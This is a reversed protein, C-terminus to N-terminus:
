AFGLSSKASPAIPSSAKPNGKRAWLTPQCFTGLIESQTPGYAKHTLFSAFRLVRRASPANVNVNTRQCRVTPHAFCSSGQRRRESSVEELGSWAAARAFRQGVHRLQLPKPSHLRPSARLTNGRPQVPCMLGRLSRPTHPKDCLKGEGTLGLVWWFSRRVRM